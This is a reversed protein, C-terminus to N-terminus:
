GKWASGRQQLGSSRGALRRILEHKRVKGLSTKPLAALQHFARPVKYPALREKGWARLAELSAGAAKTADEAPIWAAEVSEGWERDPVALVAIEGIEPHELYAAEIQLASVKYGGTKVIDSSQRGLIAYSGDKEKRAEDGTRFWGNSFAARTEAERRWYGSFLQPSRLLLEGSREPPLPRMADDVIRARVGPLPFGVSGERMPGGAPNSLAMGAETMGYRELIEKRAISRWQRFLWPPLAASGSVTLRLARAGKSWRARAEPPADEWAQVLRGYVTPVSMFLTVEESAMREWILAPNARGFEVCAGCALACFLANVLGHVHHLPLTHLIRDTKSWRWARTLAEVQHALAHHTLLVGKPKGTTGSSYLLLAPDEAVPSRPPWAEEEAPARLPMPLARIGKGEAARILANGQDLAPDVVVLCADSDCIVHMLEPLPHSVGLPVAIAGSRWCALLLAASTPGAPALFCVRPLTEDASPGLAFARALRRAGLALEAYRIPGEGDILATRDSWRSDLIREILLRPASSEM